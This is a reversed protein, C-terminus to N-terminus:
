RCSNLKERARQLGAELGSVNVGQIEFGPIEGEYWKIERELELVDEKTCGGKIKDIENALFFVQDQLPLGEIAERVTPSLAVAGNTSLLIVGGILITKLVRNIKIV